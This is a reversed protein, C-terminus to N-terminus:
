WRQEIFSQVVRDRFPCIVWILVNGRGLLGVRWILVLTLLVITGWGYTPPHIVYCNFEWFSFCLWSCLGSFSCHQVRLSVKESFTGREEGTVTLMLQWRSCFPSEIILHEKLVCPWINWCDQLNNPLPHWMDCFHDNQGSKFISSLNPKINCDWGFTHTFSPSWCHGM